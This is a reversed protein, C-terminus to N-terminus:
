PVMYLWDGAEEYRRLKRSRAMNILSASIKNKAYPTARQKLEAAVQTTNKGTAFFGEALLTNVKATCGQGAGTASRARKRKQPDATGNPPAQHEESPADDHDAAAAHGAIVASFKDLQAAVFAESGEFTLHLGRIDIVAKTVDSM